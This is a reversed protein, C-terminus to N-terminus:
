DQMPRYLVTYCLVNTPCSYGTASLGNYVRIPPDFKVYGRGAATIGGGGSAFAETTLFVTAFPGFLGYASNATNTDRLEVFSGGSSATTVLIGDIVARGDFPNVAVNGVVATSISAGNWDVSGIAMSEKEALLGVAVSGLLSLMAIKARALKTVEM